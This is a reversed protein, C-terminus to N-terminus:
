YVVWVRYVASNAPDTNHILVGSVSLDIAYEKGVQVDFPGWDGSSPLPNPFIPAGSRHIIPSTYFNLGTQGTASDNAFILGKSPPALTITVDAGGGAITGTYAAQGTAPGEELSGAGLGPDYPLIYWRVFGPPCQASGPMWWTMQKRIADNEPWPATIFSSPDCEDDYQGQVLQGTTLTGLGLYLPAASHNKFMYGSPVGGQVQIDGFTQGGSQFPLFWTGALISSLM